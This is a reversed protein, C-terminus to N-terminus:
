VRFTPKLVRWALGPRFLTSPPREMRVVRVFADTVRGDHHATRLLRAVYRNVLTAGTPRPGTTQPFAFDSGVSLRWADEIVSAARRYFRPALDGDTTSALLERLEAAELAAVSMGQGYVPNLSALADGLVLMGAPYRDLDEYRRRLSSPFPYRRVDSDMPYEDLLRGVDDVPLSQAYEVFEDPEGPPHDGHVGVLTVLWQGGEIPFVAAGRRRPADPQVLLASRTGIPRDIRVTSYALDVHVEDVPPTPFDHRALWNPTRSTRGTADVVLTAELEERGREANTISVGRVTTGARDLLSDTCRCGSRFEVGPLTVVLTRVLHEYLPRTAAYQPLRVPGDALFGGQAYFDVDAAGDIELGGASLLDARYGPFLTELIRRGPEQMVHIHHSQPVGRRAVAAEVAPDAELVTVEDFTDALGRAALLGAM